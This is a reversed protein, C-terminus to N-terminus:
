LSKLRQIVDASTHGDFDPAKDLEEAQLEKWKEIPLHYTIQEGKDMNIGAIFWGDWESGDSHKKSKWPVEYDPDSSREDDLWKQHLVKCLAIFLQIRHDYLEKFSHYGDSIDETNSSISLVEIGGYDSLQDDLFKEIEEQKEQQTLEEAGEESFNFDILIKM